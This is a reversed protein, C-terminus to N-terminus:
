PPPPPVFESVVNPTAAHRPCQMNACNVAAGFDGEAVGAAIVVLRRGAGTSARGALPALDAFADKGAVAVAAGVAGVPFPALRDLVELNMVDKFNLVPACVCVAVKAREAGGVVLQRVSLGLACRGPSPLAIGWRM